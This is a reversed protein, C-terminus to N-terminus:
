GEKGDGDRPSPPLRRHLEGYVVFIPMGGLRDSDWKAHAGDRFPADLTGDQMVPGREHGTHVNTKGIPVPIYGRNSENRIDHERVPILLEYHCEWDFTDLKQWTLQLRPLPLGLNDGREIPKDPLLKDDSM